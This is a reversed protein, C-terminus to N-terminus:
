YLTRLVWSGFLWVRANLPCRYGFHRRHSSASRGDIRARSSMKRKGSKLIANVIAHALACLLM